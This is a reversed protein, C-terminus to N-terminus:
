WEHPSCLLSVLPLVAAHVALIAIQTGLLALSLHRARAYEAASSEESPENASASSAPGSIATAFPNQTYFVLLSLHLAHTFAVAIATPLLHALEVCERRADALRKPNLQQLQLEAQQHARRSHGHSHTNPGSVAGAGAYNCAESANTSSAAACSAPTLLPSQISSSISAATCDLMQRHNLQLRLSHVLVFVALVLLVLAPAVSSICLQVRPWVRSFFYGCLPSVVCDRRGESCM